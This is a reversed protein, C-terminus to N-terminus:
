YRPTSDIYEQACRSFRTQADTRSIALESYRQPRGRSSTNPDNHWRSM